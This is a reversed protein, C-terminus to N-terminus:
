LVFRSRDSFHGNSGSVQREIVPSFHGLAARLWM